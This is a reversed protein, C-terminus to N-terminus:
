RRLQHIALVIIMLGLVAVFGGLWRTTADAGLLGGITSLGVLVTVAGFNAAAALALPNNADRKWRRWMQGLSKVEEPPVSKSWSCGMSPATVPHDAAAPSLAIM